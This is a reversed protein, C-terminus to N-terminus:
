SSPVFVEVSPLVKSGTNPSFGQIGQKVKVGRLLQEERM